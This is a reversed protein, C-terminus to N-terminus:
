DMAEPFSPSVAVGGPICVASFVCLSVSPFSTTPMLKMRSVKNLAAPFCGASVCRRSCWAVHLDFFFIVRSGNSENHTTCFSSSKFASLRLSFLSYHFFFSNLSFFNTCRVRSFLVGVNYHPLTSFFIWRRIRSPIPHRVSLLNTQCVCACM